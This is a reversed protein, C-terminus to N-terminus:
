VVSKRDPNLRKMAEDKYAEFGRIYGATEQNLNNAALTTTIGLKRYQGSHHKILLKQQEFGSDQKYGGDHSGSFGLLIAQSKGSTQHKLALKQYDHPGTSLSLSRSPDYPSPTVINVTGFMANSGYFVGSPGRIIDIQDALEYSSEFLQNANCFGPSRLSIGDQAIAFAGCSGAGTFVPSRIASLSEQGNGRSIWTGAARGAIENIHIADVRAIDEQGIISLSTNLEFSQTEARSATVTVQEAKIKPTPLPSNATEQASVQHSLGLLAIFNVSFRLLNSKLLKQIVPLM